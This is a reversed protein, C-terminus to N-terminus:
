AGSLTQLALLLLHHSSDREVPLHENRVPITAKTPRGSSVSTPDTVDVAIIEADNMADSTGPM